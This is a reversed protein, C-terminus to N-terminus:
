KKYKGANFTEEEEKEEVAKIDHIQYQENINSNLFNVKSTKLSSFAIRGAKARYINGDSDTIVVYPEVKKNKGEVEEYRSIYYDGGKKEIEKEREGTIVNYLPTDRAISVKVAKDGTLGSIDWSQVKKRVTTKGENLLFDSYEPKVDFTEGFKGSGYLGKEMTSKTEKNRYTPLEKRVYSALYKDQAKSISTLEEKTLNDREKLAKTMAAKEVDDFLINNPNDLNYKFTRASLDALHEEALKGKMNAAANLLQNYNDTTDWGKIFGTVEDLTEGAVGTKNKAANTMVDDIKKSLAGAQKVGMGYVSYEPSKISVTGTEPDEVVNDAEKLKDISKGYTLPNGKDDSGIPVYIGSIPAVAFEQKAQIDNDYLKDIANVGQLDQNANSINSILNDKKAMLSRLEKDYGLSSITKLAQDPTPNKTKDFQSRMQVLVNQIDTEVDDLKTKLTARTGKTGTVYTKKYDRKGDTDKDKTTSTSQPLKSFLNAFTVLGTPEALKTESFEYGGYFPSGNSLGDGFLAM